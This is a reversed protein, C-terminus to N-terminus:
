AMDSDPEQWADKAVTVGGDIITGSEGIYHVVCCESSDEATFCFDNPQYVGNALHVTIAKPVADSALIKRIQQRIEALSNADANMHLADM